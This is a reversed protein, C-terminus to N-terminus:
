FFLIKFFLDEGALTNSFTQATIVSQKIATSSLIFFQKKISFLAGPPFITPHIKFLFIM